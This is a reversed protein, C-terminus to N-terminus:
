KPLYVKYKVGVPSPEGVGIAQVANLWAYKGNTSAAFTAATVLATPGGVDLQARGSYTMYINERDHTRLVLRVDIVGIGDPRMLFWDAGSALVKGNFRPGEFRGGSVHIVVRTGEPTDPIVIPPPALEIEIECLLEFEM